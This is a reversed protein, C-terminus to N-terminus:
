RGTATEAQCAQLSALHGQIDRTLRQLTENSLPLFVSSRTCDVFQV